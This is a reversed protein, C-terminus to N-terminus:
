ALFVQVLVKIVRPGFPLHCNALHWRGTKRYFIQRAFSTQFRYNNIYFCIVTVVFYLLHSSFRALGKQQKMLEVIEGLDEV